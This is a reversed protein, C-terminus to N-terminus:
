DKEQKATSFRKAQELMTAELGDMAPLMPDQPAASQEAEPSQLPSTKKSPPKLPVLVGRGGGFCSENHNKGLHRNAM